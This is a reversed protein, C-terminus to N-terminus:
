PLLVAEGGGVARRLCESSGEGLDAAALFRGLVVSGAVTQPMVPESYWAWGERVLVAAGASTTVLISSTASERLAATAFRALSAPDAEAREADLEAAIGHHRALVLLHAVSMEVIDVGADVADQLAVDSQDVTIPPGEPAAAAAAALGVGDGPLSRTAISWRNPTPACLGFLADDNSPEPPAQPAPMTIRRTQPSEKM